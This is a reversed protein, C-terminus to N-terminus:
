MSNAQNYNLHIPYSSKNHTLLPRDSSNFGSQETWTMRKPYTVVQVVISLCFFYQMLAQIRVSRSKLIQATWYWHNLFGFCFAHMPLVHGLYKLILFWNWPPISTFISFLLTLIQWPGGAWKLTFVDSRHSTGGSVSHGFAAPKIGIWLHILPTRRPPPSLKRHNVTSHRYTRYADRMSGGVVRGGSLAGLTLLFLVSWIEGGLCIFPYYSIAM